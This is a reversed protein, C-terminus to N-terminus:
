KSDISIKQNTEIMKERRLDKLKKAKKRGYLEEYTKGKQKKILTEIAKKCAPRGMNSESIKKKTEESPSKRSSIIRGIVYGENKFSEIENEFVRICKNDSERKMWIKKCMTKSIKNKWESNNKLMNVYLIRVKEYMRSTTRENQCFANLAFVLKHNSYHIKVLLLHCIFHERFTLLVLNDPENGGGMCKPIIHHEEYYVDNERTRNQKKANDIIKQYVLKYNM